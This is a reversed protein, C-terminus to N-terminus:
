DDPNTEFVIELLEAECETSDPAVVCEAPLTGDLDINNPCAILCLQPTACPPYRKKASMHNTRSGNDDPKGGPDM